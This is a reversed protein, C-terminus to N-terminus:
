IHILSLGLASDFGPDYGDSIWVGPPHPLPIGSGPQKGVRAEAMGERGVSGGTSASSGRAALLAAMRVVDVLVM